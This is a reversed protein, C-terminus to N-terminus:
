YRLILRMILLTLFILANVARTIVDFYDTLVTNSCSGSGGNNCGGVVVVIVVAM